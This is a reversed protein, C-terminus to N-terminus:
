AGAERIKEVEYIYLDAQAIESPQLGAKDFACHRIFEDRGWGQEVAVDPLYTGGCNGHEVYIGHRGIEVEEPSTVKKMEGLVSIEIRLEPLEKASVKPFRPDNFASALAMRALNAGLTQHQDFTGICGRLQGHRYLTVFCGLKRQLSELAPPEPAPQADLRSHITQRVFHLM